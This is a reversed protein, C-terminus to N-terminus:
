PITTLQHGCSCTSLWGDIPPNKVWQPHFEIISLMHAPTGISQQGNPSSWFVFQLNAHMSHPMPMSISQLTFLSSTSFSTLSNISPSLPLSIFFCAVFHCFIAFSATPIFPEEFKFRSL